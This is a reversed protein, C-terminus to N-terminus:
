SKGCWFSRGTWELSCVQSIARRSGCWSHSLSQFAIDSGLFIDTFFWEIGEFFGNLARSHQQIIGDYTTCHYPIQVNDIFVVPPCIPKKSTKITPTPREMSANAAAIHLPSEM